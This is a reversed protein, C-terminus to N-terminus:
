TVQDEDRRSTIRAGNSISSASNRMDLICKYSNREASDRRMRLLNTQNSLSGRSESVLLAGVLVSSELEKEMFVQLHLESDQDMQYERTQQERSLLVRSWEKEYVNEKKRRNVMKMVVKGVQVKERVVKREKLNAGAVQLELNYVGCSVKKNYVYYERDNSLRMEISLSKGSEGNVLKGAIMEDKNAVPENIINVMRM